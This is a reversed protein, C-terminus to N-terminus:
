VARAVPKPMWGEGFEYLSVRGHLDVGGLIMELESRASALELVLRSNRLSFFNVDMLVKFKLGAKRLALARM